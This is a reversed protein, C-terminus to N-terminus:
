GGGNGECAASTSRNSKAPKLLQRIVNKAATSLGAASGFQEAVRDSVPLVAAQWDIEPANTADTAFILGSCTFAGCENLQM